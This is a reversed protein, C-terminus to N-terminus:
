CGSGSSRRRCRASGASGPRRVAERGAASIGSSYISSNGARCAGRIPELYRESLSGKEYVLGPLSTTVINKGATLIRTFDALAEKPRSGAPAAYIICDADGNLLAEVDRTATVGVPDIGALSGIDQGDKAVSHVWAGVLELNPRDAATRIAYRGVDGTAWVAVKYAKGTM